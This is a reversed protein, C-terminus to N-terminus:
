ARGREIVEMYSDRISEIPSNNFYEKIEKIEDGFSFITITIEKM